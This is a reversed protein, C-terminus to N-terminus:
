EWEYLMKYNEPRHEQRYKTPSLGTEEHFTSSFSGHSAFGSRKAVENVPLDTCALWERALKLRYQQLFLDIREGTQYRFMSYVIERKIKVEKAIKQPTMSCDRALIRAVDNLLPSNTKPPTKDVPEMRMWGEANTVMKAKLPSVYIDDVTINKHEM